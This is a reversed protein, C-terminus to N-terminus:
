TTLQTTDREKETSNQQSHDKTEKMGVSQREEKKTHEREKFGTVNERTHKNVRIHKAQGTRRNKRWSRSM